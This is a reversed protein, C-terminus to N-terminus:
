DAELAERVVVLSEPAPHGRRLMLLEGARTVVAVVIEDKGYEGLSALYGDVDTYACWTWQAAKNEVAHRLLRRRRPKLAIALAPTEPLAAVWHNVAKEQGQKLFFLVLAPDTPIDRPLLRESGDADRARLHPLQPAL